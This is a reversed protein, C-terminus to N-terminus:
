HQKSKLFNQLERVTNYDDDNGEVFRDIQLSELIIKGKPDEHISFFIQKLKEKIEPEMSPTVVVPPIGYPPSRDVIMTKAVLKPNRVQMFEFILSDVAAGDALGHAVAQISNDHSHTFFTKKFYSEPTQNRRALYYSPVMFGTNSLPDTFAFTKGRFDDFSKIGSNRSTIFYSYYVKKGHCVPVAIIEMGFNEKGSVYPGSCVFALDLEKRKLMGNVQSYTKKQIFIVQQGMREGILNLLEVYYKYTYKPSIMAAVAIKLAFRYERKSQAGNGKVVENFDIKVPEKKLEKMNDDGAFVPSSLMASVFLAIVSLRFRNNLIFM